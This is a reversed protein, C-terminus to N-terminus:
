EIAAAWGGNKALHINLQTAANVNQMVKNYHMAQYDANKGDKYATLQHQGASLFNLNLTLDRSTGNTIAGIFWKAGKRKAVVVYEGAQAALCRTEDWTTPVSAIYRTCEDAEYYRTPNDALMQVGSELIVYLAMQFARTGMAGSNPRTARYCEPQMNYMGGPTFDAPGVANRIFPIFLTNDTTCRAMQELGLVGEYSLLNPYEQELGAPTFAGHWDIIIHYKAAEATVKKYFNVMWQDAHDMFDIKVATIGWDAYTKFITDFNNYVALWPLWLVIKVGKADCYKILEPLRLEDNGNFPDTTSKAWGEDLLIYEVGYKAAFDAFYCYTDYNCGAKFDVDPGYPTAGNWWEWSFQGPKIWSTDALVNRRALQVPVTQEIIGKSDTVVVWRWPLARQGNTKAIYDAEQTITEGRDGRPEWSIPAKPFTTTIAGDKTLLFMHPYDDVDSEGILLQTDDPASLLLPATAMKDDQQWESLSKHQYPEEYSTNFSGATQYHATFDNAPCLNFREDMIEVNGKQNLVFRHAVANDMVRLLVQYAGYNITAENYNDRIESFKLPVIPHIIQNGPKQKISKVKAKDGLTKGGIILAIGNETYVTKGNRSVTWSLGDATNVTVKIQGNPSTVVTDAGLAVISLCLLALGISLIKKM